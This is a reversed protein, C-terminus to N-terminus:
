RNKGYRMQGQGNGSGDQQGLGLEARIKNAENTQGEIRLRHMEAFKEFNGDNVVETVRGKGQMLQSWAEYDNNEFAETMAEKREETCNPGQAEPDGKYAGVNSTAALLTGAGLTLVAVVLM